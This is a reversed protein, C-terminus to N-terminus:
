IGSYVMEEFTAGNDNNKSKGFRERLNDANDLAKMVSNDFQETVSNPEVTPKVINLSRNM